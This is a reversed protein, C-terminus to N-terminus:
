PKQYVVRDGTIKYFSGALMSNADALAHTAFEPLDGQIRLDGGASASLSVFGNGIYMSSLSTWIEIDEDGLYLNSNLGQAFIRADSLSIFATPSPAAGTYNSVSRNTIAASDTNMPNYGKAVFAANATADLGLYSSDGLGITGALESSFRLSSNFNTDTAALRPIYVSVPDPVNTFRSFWQGDTASVGNWTNDVDYIGNGANALRGDLYDVDVLDTGAAPTGTQNITYFGAGNTPPVLTLQSGGDLIRWGNTQTSNFEIQNINSINNDGMNLDGGATHTQATGIYGDASGGGVVAEWQTTGDAQRTLVDGDVASADNSPKIYLETDSGIVLKDPHYFGGATGRFGLYTDGTYTESITQITNSELALFENLNTGRFRLNSYEIINTNTTGAWTIGSTGVTVSRGNVTGDNLYISTDTTGGTGVQDDVWSYGGIGDTSLIQGNTGGAPLITSADPYVVPNWTAGDYVLVQGNSAGNVNALQSLNTVSQTYTALGAEDIDIFLQADAVSSGSATTMMYDGTFFVGGIGIVISGNDGLITTASGASVQDTVWSYNGAGDTSLIQGTTGGAPLGSGGDEWSVIGAGDTTLVQGTTGTVGKPLIKINGGISTTLSLDVSAEISINAVDLAYQTTNGGLGIIQYDSILFERTGGGSQTLTTNGINTDTGTPLTITNGNSITLDSGVISITQQDLLIPSLDLSAGSNGVGTLNLVNGVLNMGNIYDIDNTDTSSIVNAGSIAINTGAIYTNSLDSWSATIDPIGTGTLTLTKTTTGSVTATQVFTNTDTITTSVVNGTIDIGTGATYINSLSSLDVSGNFAGNQGTSVLNTGTLQLNTIMDAVNSGSSTNLNDLAVDLTTSTSTTPNFVTINSGDLNTSINWPTGTFGDGTLALGTGVTLFQTYNTSAPLTITNGGTITLQDGTISLTQDPPLISSLDFSTGANGVGGLTVTTGTISSTNIFDINNTDVITTFGVSQAHGLEDFTISSVIQNTSSVTGATLPSTNDHFFTNGTLGIGPGATYTTNSFTFNSGTQVVGSGDFTIAGSQGGITTITDTDTITFTQTGSNYILGSGDFLFNGDSLDGVSTGLQTVTGASTGTPTGFSVGILHNESDITVGSIYQGSTGTKTGAPFLPAPDVHTIVNTTNNVDILGTGTYMNTAVPTTGIATIHGNSITLENIVEGVTINIGDLGSYDGHQIDTGVLVIDNSATYETNTDTLTFTNGVQTIGSGQFIFDGETPTIGVSGLKTPIITVSQLNTVHGYADLSGSQLVTLGTNTVSSQTTTMGHSFINSNLQIGSGAMYNINEYGSLDINGTPANGIGTYNISNGSQTITSIYDISDTDTLTSSIVNSSSIAINLGATYTQGTSRLDSLDISGGFADGVPTFNILDGSRQINAIYDNPTNGANIVDVGVIASGQTVTFELTSNPSYFHLADGLQARQTSLAEAPNNTLGASVIIGQNIIDSLCCIQKNFESKTIYLSM